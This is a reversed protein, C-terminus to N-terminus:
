ASVSKASKERAMKARALLDRGTSNLYRTIRFTGREDEFFRAVRDVAEELSIGDTCHRPFGVVCERYPKFANVSVRKDGFDIMLHQVTTLLDAAIPALAEKLQGAREITVVEGPCVVHPIWTRLTGQSITEPTLTDVVRLVRELGAAREDGHGRVHFTTESGSRAWESMSPDVVDTAPGPGYHVNYFQGSYDADHALVDERVMDVLKQVEDDTAM